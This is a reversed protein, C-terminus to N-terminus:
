LHLKDLYLNLAFCIIVGIFYIKGIKYFIPFFFKAGDEWDELELSPTFYIPAFFIMWIIPIYVSLNEGFNVVQPILLPAFIVVLRWSVELRNIKKYQKKEM